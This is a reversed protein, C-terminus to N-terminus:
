SEVEQLMGQSMDQIVGRYRQNATVNIIRHQTAIIVIPLHRARRTGVADDRLLQGPRRYRPFVQELHAAFLFAISVAPLAVPLLLSYLTLVAM